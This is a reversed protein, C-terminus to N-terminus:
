RVNFLYQKDVLCKMYKAKIPYGLVISITCWCNIICKLNSMQKENIVSEKLWYLHSIRKQLWCKIKKM